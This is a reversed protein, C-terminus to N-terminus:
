DFWGGVTGKVSGAFAGVADGVADVFKDPDVTFEFVGSGGKGSSLGVEGGFHYTGNGGDEKGFTLEAEAGPGYWGEATSGFGIGGVEAGGAVSGKAGALAQANPTVGDKGARAGPGSSLRPAPSDTPGATPASLGTTSSDRSWPM